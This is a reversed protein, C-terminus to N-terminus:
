FCNDLFIKTSIFSFIFKKLYSDNIKREILLEEIKKRNVYQFIKSKKNLLFDLNKKNNLDILNNIDFNFGVKKRDLRVKDILIDKMSNRLLFKNFGNQIYNKSPISYLYEILEKDLFPSRNEISNQMSNQDDEFLIVPVSEYFLENLMRNKLVDKCFFHPKFKKFSTPKLIYPDILDKNDFIYSYNKYINKFQEINKFIPNKVNPQIFKTWNILKRKDNKNQIIDLIYHDYYGSFIEDAGTGSILIKVGDKKAIKSIQSHVYYSITLVTMQRYKILKTLNKIFHKKDFTIKKNKINLDKIVYDINKSENYDKNNDIISYTNINQNFIKKSISVLSTSDVGGSLCFGIPVDSRLRIKLSNIIKKQINKKYNNNTYIKKKLKWFKKSSINLNKDFTLISGPDINKIDKYFTNNDKYVSKYGLNLFANIKNSNQSFKEIKIKKLYNIESGFILENNAYKYFFPKEGFRDRTLSLEELSQDYIAMAWMGELYSLSKKGYINLAKLVVETDSETKFDHGKKKIKKKLELYNYIEGNFIITYKGFSMPQNSRIKLDIISLRSHFLYINKKNKTKIKVFQQNDPGRYKM